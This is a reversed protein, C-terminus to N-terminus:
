RVDDILTIDPKKQPAEEPADLLKIEDNEAQMASEPVKQPKGAKTATVPIKVDWDPVPPVKSSAGTAPLTVKPTGSLVPVAMGHLALVTRKLETIEARNVDLERNLMFTAVALAATVPLTVAVGALAIRSLDMTKELTKFGM